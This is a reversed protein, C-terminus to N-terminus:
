GFGIKELLKLIRALTHLLVTMQDGVSTVFHVNIVSLNQGILNLRIKALTELSFFIPNM